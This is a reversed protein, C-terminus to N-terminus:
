LKELQDIHDNIQALKNALKDISQMVEEIAFIEIKENQGSVTPVSNLQPGFLRVSVKCLRESALNAQENAALLRSHISAIISNSNDIASYELM